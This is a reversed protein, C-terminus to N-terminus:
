INQLIRVSKTAASFPMPILPTPRLASQHGAPKLMPENLDVQLKADIRGRRQAQSARAPNSPYTLSGFRTPKLSPWHPPTRLIELAIVPVHTTM